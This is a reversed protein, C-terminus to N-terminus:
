LEPPMHKSSPALALKWDEEEEVEGGREVCVSVTKQKQKKAFLIFALAVISHLLASLSFERFTTWNIM